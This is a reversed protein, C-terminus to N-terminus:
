ASVFGRAMTFLACAAGTKIAYGGTVKVANVGDSNNGSGNTASLAWRASQTLMCSTLLKICCVWRDM